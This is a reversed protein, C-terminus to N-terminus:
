QTAAPGLLSSEPGARTELLEFGLLDMRGSTLFGPPEQAHVRGLYKRKHARHGGPRQVLNIAVVRGALYVTQWGGITFTLTFRLRYRLIGALQSKQKHHQPRSRGPRAFARSDTASSAVLIRLLEDHQCNRRDAEVDCLRDKLNM